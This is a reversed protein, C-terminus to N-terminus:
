RENDGASDGQRRADNGRNEGSRRYGQGIARRDLGQRRHDAAYGWADDANRHASPHPFVIRQQLVRHDPAEEVQLLLRDFMLRLRGTRTHNDIGPLAINHGVRMDDLIGAVNVL